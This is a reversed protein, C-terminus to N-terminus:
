TLSVSVYSSALRPRSQLSSSVESLCIQWKIILEFFLVPKCEQLKIKLFHFCLKLRLELRLKGVRCFAVYQLLFDIKRAFDRIVVALIIGIGICLLLHLKGSINMM